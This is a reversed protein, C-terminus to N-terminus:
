KWLWNPLPCYDKFMKSSSIYSKPLPSPFLPSLSELFFLCVERQIDYLLIYMSYLM